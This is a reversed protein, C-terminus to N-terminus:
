ARIVVGRDRRDSFAPLQEQDFRADLVHRRM